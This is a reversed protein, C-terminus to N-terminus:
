RPGGRPCRTGSSRAVVTPDNPHVEFTPGHLTVVVATGAPELADHHVDCVALFPFLVCALHGGDQSASDFLHRPDGPGIAHLIRGVPPRDVDRWLYLLKEPVRRRLQHGFRPEEGPQNERVVERRGQCQRLSTDTAAFGPQGLEADDRTVSPHQPEAAPPVEAMVVLAARQQVANPDVDGRLLFSGVRSGPVASRCSRQGLTLGDPRLERVSAPLYPHLKAPLEVSGDAQQHNEM